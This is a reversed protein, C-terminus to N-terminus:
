QLVVHKSHWDAKAVGQHLYRSEIVVQLLTMGKVFVMKAIVFMFRFKCFLNSFEVVHLAVSFTKVRIKSFWLCVFFFHRLKFVIVFLEVRKM